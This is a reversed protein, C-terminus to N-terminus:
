LRQINLGGSVEFVSGTSFSFDGRALSAVAKAVDEPYGWRKQPVLGQSILRNYKEEVSATMDTKIIGPRVEYVNIGYESLRDAFIKAAQSLAAKSV